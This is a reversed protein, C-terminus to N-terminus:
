MLQILLLSQLHELQKGSYFNNIGEVTITGTGVNVADSISVESYEGKDGDTGKYLAIAGDVVAYTPVIKGGTYTYSSPNVKVMDNSLAKAKMTTAKSATVDFTKGNTSGMIYNKNTITVTAKIDKNIVPGAVFAYKVTYDAADLIKSVKGSTDKAVVTVPINYQEPKTYDANYTVTEPVTIDAASVTLPSIVFPIAFTQGAYNGGLISVNVYAQTKIKSSDGVKGEYTAADTNNTYGTIEWQSAQLAEPGATGTVTLTGLDDKSPTIASGTYM